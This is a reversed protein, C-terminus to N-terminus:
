CKRSVWNYRSKTNSCRRIINYELETSSFCKWYWNSNLVKQLEMVDTGTSGVTLSRTFIYGAAGVPAVTATLVFAVAIASGLVVALVKQTTSLKM